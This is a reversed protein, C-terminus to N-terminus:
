WSVRLGVNGQITDRRNADLNTTYSAAAFAGVASSFKAVIGGGFELATAMRQTSIVDSAAFTVTDQGGFNRWVNAKLFPQLLTSGATFNGQLRGGIRGSFTDSAGYSVSSVIDQTPDLSLHQYIIQAEPEFTLNPAILIPYGGELSVIQGTGDARASLGTISHPAGTYWTQMAVADIYWGSPGIHTWYAGASTADISLGGVPVDHFGGAFGRVSGTAHGYAAFIGVRDSHGSANEWGFLDLGSQIGALSGNFSPNAMGSWQQDTHEGYGRAWAASAPGANGLLSQGGQRDHFTGLNAHGLERAVFPVASYLAVEPRYLPIPSATSIVAPPTGPSGPPTGPPAPLVVPTPPPPLPPTGPAAVPTPPAPPPTPDTPTAPPTVPVPPVSSRLYWNNETGATVGGHFLYYQYAGALLPGGSLMFATPVTTAGNTAQVVLIGSDITLGGSGGHNTVGVSTTGSATGGSIVLKDSPSNNAGLMTQINLRGSNGVYNGAITLSNTTPAGGNTLDILGANTVTIPPGGLNPTISPNAGDGALLSTGAAITVNGTLSNQLRFTGSNVFTNSFTGAGNWSWDTGEMFLTQFNTFPNTIQGTGQLRVVNGGGGGNALGAIQSGTQLIFTVNGGGGNLATGNGGNLLGANIVTTAGNLTRVAPGQDSIIQGGLQNEIMATFGSSATNSFVGESNLGTAHIIGSNTLHDNNGQMYVATSNNGNTQLMGTNNVMGNQGLISAARANSGNTTVSGNNVITNNSQGVITQGWSATMGYANPGMTTITGDNTLTNGSGNAAMGDNFAGMTSITGSMLNTILNSDGTGLMAAGRNGGTGGGGTLSISGSNNIQSSTIM